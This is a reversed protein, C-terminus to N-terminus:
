LGRLLRLLEWEVEACRRGISALELSREEGSLHRRAQGLTIVAWRVNAFVEWYLALDPNPRMGTGAAYAKFFRERPGLGRAGVHDVCRWFRIVVWALDEWPDGLHTVEWDLIASLGQRRDVIFNGLRYDGHVVVVREPRPPRRGLWRLALGLGPHPEGIEALTRELEVLQAEAPTPEVSRRPLCALAGPPVTHIRALEEGLQELIRPRVGELAPDALIRRAVTEGDVREVIMGMGVSPDGDDVMWYPEPVRVGAAHMVRLVEFEQERSLWIPLPTGGRERLYILRARGAREGSVIEVDLAWADRRTGGTLRSLALVSVPAGVRRGIDRELGTRLHDTGLSM